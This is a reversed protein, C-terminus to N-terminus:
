QNFQDQINELTPAQSMVGRAAFSWYIIGILMCVIVPAQLGFIEGLAGLTLSGIAPLGVALGTSLSIVRGRKDPDVTNQILSQNAVASAIISMGVGFVSIMAFWFINTAAFGLLFLTAMLVSIVNVRALGDTKKRM